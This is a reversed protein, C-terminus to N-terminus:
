IFLFYIGFGSLISGGLLESYRGLFGRVSRGVMLAICSLIASSAGFLLFALIVHMESLGLGLGVTFSDTSVTFALVFLGFGVPPFLLKKEEKFAGFFMQAGIFLLILGSFLQAYSELQGVIMKGIIIGILPMLMHFSGIVLSIWLIRKLRLKQMGLGLCISFADMGLAFALFLLSLLEGSSIELKNGGKSM